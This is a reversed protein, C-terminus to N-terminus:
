WKCNVIQFFVQIYTEFSYILARAKIFEHNGNNEKEM